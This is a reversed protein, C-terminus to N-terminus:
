ENDKKVKLFNKITNFYRGASEAAILEDFILKDVDVYVYDKNNTFTVTLEKTEDDYSASQLMTSNFFHDYKM